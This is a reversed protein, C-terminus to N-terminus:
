ASAMSWVQLATAYWNRCLYAWSCSVKMASSTTAAATAHPRATGTGLAAIFPNKLQPELKILQRLTEMEAEIDELKQQIAANTEEQDLEAEEADVDYDDKDPTLPELDNDLIDENADSM